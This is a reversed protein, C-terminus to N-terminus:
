QDGAFMATAFTPDVVSSADTRFTGIRCASATPQTSAPMLSVVGAAAINLCVFGAIAYNASSFATTFNVTFDGTGNDTVSSVNYSAAITGADNFRVWAKVASAHYQQRGPSVYVTTSSGTEQEAQTAAAPQTVAAWAPDAGAGLSKLFNGSTGPALISWGLAGRYLVSGRTSGIAADILASLTSWQTAYDAAGSKNLIANTAGGAPVAAAASAGGLLALAAAVSAAQVVPIMAASITATATTGAILNGDNDWVASQNRRDSVVPITAPNGGPDSVAVKLTRSIQAQLDQAVMTIYDFAAEVVNAYFNGQNSLATSQVQSLVREVTLYQGAALPSGVLPYTAQGNNSPVTPTSIGTVSYSGNPIVTTTAPSVTTDVVTVRLNSQDTSTAGPVKFAFPWATSAGNGQLTVSAATTSVTM